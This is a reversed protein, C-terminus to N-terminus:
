STLDNLKRIGVIEPLMFFAREFEDLTLSIRQDDPYYIKEDM